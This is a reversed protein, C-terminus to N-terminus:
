TCNSQDSVEIKPVHHKLGFVGLVFGKQAARLENQERTSSIKFKNLINNLIAFILGIKPSKAMRSRNEIDNSAPKLM